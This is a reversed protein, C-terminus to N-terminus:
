PLDAQMNPNFLQRCILNYTNHTYFQRILGRQVTWFGMVANNLNRIHAKDVLLGEASIQKMVKNTTIYNQFGDAKPELPNFSEADTQEDTADARGPTFPVKIGTLGGNEPPRKLPLADLLCLSTPWPCMNTMRKATMLNIKSRGWIIYCQRSIRQIM